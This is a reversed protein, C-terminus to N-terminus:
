QSEEKWEFKIERTQPDVTLTAYGREVAQSQFEELRSKEYKIGSTLIVLFVLLVFVVIIASKNDEM